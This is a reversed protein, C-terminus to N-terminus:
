TGLDEFARPEFDTLAEAPVHASRRALREFEHVDHSCFISVTDGHTANLERLRQQNNLRAQRDKEMMAQYARLGPTCWPHKPDMEAHFFYADGALLAWDHPRRVAVGAHGFTHGVLPILLIDSAVDPLPRVSAFGFWDEGQGTPHEVWHPRTSWQQPRYRMRDLTTRRRTAARVEDALLHIQAHPFDDLGGAHDFDLHTLVIHRVDSPDFGMRRIQRVATMEERFDPRLLKLFFRSLRRQPDRVDRLGLGTDLLVLERGTEILVCHCTLHGRAVVSPTDGDMLKGGVPCTSICNLHHLRMVVDMAALVSGGQRRRGSLRQSAEFWGSPLAPRRPNPGGVAEGTPFPPRALGRSAHRLQPTPGLSM